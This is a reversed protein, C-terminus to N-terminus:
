ISRIYKLLNNTAEKLEDKSIRADHEHALTNRVKHGEWISQYIQHDINSQANRLRDAFTEGAYGKLKLTHDVLKDAEMVAHRLEYDNDSKLLSEIEQRKVIIEAQDSGSIGKRKSKKRFPWSVLWWLGKFIGVFITELITPGQNKYYKKSMNLLKLM